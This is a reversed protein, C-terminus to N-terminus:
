TRDAQLARDFHCVFLLLPHMAISLSDSNKPDFKRDLASTTARTAHREARRIWGDRRSTHRRIRKLSPDRLRADSCGNLRHSTHELKRVRGNFSPKIGM